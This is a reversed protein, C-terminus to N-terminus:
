GTSVLSANSYGSLVCSTSFQKAKVQAEIGECSFASIACCADTASGYKALDILQHAKLEVCEGVVKAIHIGFSACLM